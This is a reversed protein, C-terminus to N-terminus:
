PSRGMGPTLANTVLHRSQQGALIVSTDISVLCSLTPEFISGIHHSMSIKNDPEQKLSHWGGADGAADPPLTPQLFTRLVM